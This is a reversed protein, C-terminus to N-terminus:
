NKQRRAAEALRNIWHPNKKLAESLKARNAEDLSGKAFAEIRTVIEAPPEEASRGEVDETYKALFGALVKLEDNM